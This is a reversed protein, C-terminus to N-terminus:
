ARSSASRRARPRRQLRDRGRHGPCDVEGRVAALRTIAVSAHTFFLLMEQLYALGGRAVDHAAHLRALQVAHEIVARPTPLRTPWAGDPLAEVEAPKWEALYRAVVDVVAREDAAAKLHTRWSHRVM